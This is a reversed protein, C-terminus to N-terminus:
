DEVGLMKKLRTQMAALEKEAAKRLRVEEALVERHHRRLESVEERHAKREAGLKLHLAQSEADLQEMAQEVTSMYQMHDLVEWVTMSLTGASPYPLQGATGDPVDGKRKAPEAGPEAVGHEAKQHVRIQGVKGTTECDRCGHVVEGDDLTLVRIGHIPIFKGMADSLPSRYVEDKVVLKDGVKERVFAPPYEVAVESRKTM